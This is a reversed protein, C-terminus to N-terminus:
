RGGFKTLKLTIPFQGSDIMMQATGDMVIDRPNAWIEAKKIQKSKATIHIVEFTGAPVTITTTEQDIIEIPDNPIEQKQGNQRVELVQGTARDLLTEVKQNGIMGGSIDQQIWIANGQESAVFKKMTGMPMGMLELNYEQFEGIKWNIVNSIARDGAVSLQLESMALNLATESQQDAQANGAFAFLAALLSLTLKKM